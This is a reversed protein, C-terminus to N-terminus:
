TPWAPTKSHGNRWTWPMLSITRASTIKRIPRSYIPRLLGALQQRVFLRVQDIADIDILEYQEALYNVSPLSLAQAKLAKDLQEDLLTKRLAEIFMAPVQLAEGAQYDRVMAQMINISLQQGAEWRNFANSDHAFLFALEDNSAEKKVIVPASFDRLLSAM